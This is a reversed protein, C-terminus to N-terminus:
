KMSPRPSAFSAVGRVADDIRQTWVRYSRGSSDVKDQFQLRMRSQIRSANKSRQNNM